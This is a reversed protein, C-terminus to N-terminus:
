SERQAYVPERVVQPGGAGPRSPQQLIRNAGVVTCYSPVDRTVVANAGIIAGRGVRVGGLVKAGAGVYVNDEIVPAANDGHDKTGITVQQMVTVRSGIVAGSHIVIGYPHPMLIPADPRCYVDSNLLLRILKGLVPVKRRACFLLLRAALPNEGVTSSPHRREIRCELWHLVAAEVSAVVAGIQHSADVVVSDRSRAALDLYASRQRETEAHSVESKRAQPVAAPADLLVWLDPRPVLRAAARALHAPGGYRYRKPDALLDHFYRDFAVLGSRAKLPWVRLLWGALFDAVFYALKAASALAGRPPQRHPQAVELEASTGPLLRPRLHFAQTRRFAPALDRLVQELVSSKGSGDPGIFALVAGTPRALRAAMRAAERLMAGLRRPAARHMAKRLQPMAARVEDWRNSDAADTVLRALAWGRWFRTVQDAIGDPDERWLAALYDGHRGDLERKDIKKLLYYIFQVDPAPVDFGRPEGHGDIAPRRRALLEEAGLLLRGHRYYDSCFDAALFRPRGVEDTWALVFYCATQEHRLMQVLHLDYDRCFHSVAPAVHELAARPVALDIDSPLAQPYLRADGLVCFPMGGSQLQDFLAQALYGRDDM